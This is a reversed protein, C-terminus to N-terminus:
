RLVSSLSLLNVFSSLIDLRKAYPLPIEEFTKM